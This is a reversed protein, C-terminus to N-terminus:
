FWIAESSLSRVMLHGQSTWALWLAYRLVCARLTTTIARSCEPQCAGRPRVSFRPAANSCNTRRISSCSGSISSAAPLGVTRVPEIERCSAVALWQQDICLLRGRLCGPAYLLEVVLPIRASGRRRLTSESGILSRAAHDPSCRHSPGTSGPWSPILPRIGAATRVRWGQAPSGRQARRTALATRIRRTRISCHLLTVPSDRSRGPEKRAHNTSGSLFLYARGGRAFDM